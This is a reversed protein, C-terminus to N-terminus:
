RRRDERARRAVISRTSAAPWAATRRDGGGGAPAPGLRHRGAAAARVPRLRRGGPQRDDGGHAPCLAARAEAAHQARRLKAAAVMQLAKTIKQTSKVSGIRTRMEKVTAMPTLGEKAAFTKSVEDLAKKLMAELDPTLAKEKRIGELFQPYSTKLKGLLADQFPRCRPPRSPTSIAAPAPM